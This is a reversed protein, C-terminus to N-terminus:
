VNHDDCQYHYRNIMGLWLAIHVVGQLGAPLQELLPMPIPLCCWKPRKSKPLENKVVTGPTPSLDHIQSCGLRHHPSFRVFHNTDCLEELIASSASPLHGHMGTKISPTDGPHIGITGIRTEGSCIAWREPFFYAWLSWSSM